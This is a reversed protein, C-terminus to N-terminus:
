INRIQSEIHFRNWPVLRQSFHSIAVQLATPHAVKVKVNQRMLYRHKTYIISSYSVTAYGPLHTARYSLHIISFWLCVMIMLLSNILDHKQDNSHIYEHNWNYMLCEWSFIAFLVYKGLRQYRRLLYHLDYTSSIFLCSYGTKENNEQLNQKPETNGSISLMFKWLSCTLHLQVM